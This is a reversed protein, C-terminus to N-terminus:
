SSTTTTSTTTTTTTTTLRPGCSYMSLDGFNYDGSRGFDNEDKDWFLMWYHKYAIGNDFEWSKLEGQSWHGLNGVTHHTPYDFTGPMKVQHILTGGEAETLNTPAATNSARLQFADPTRPFTSGNYALISFKNVIQPVVFSYGVYQQDLTGGVWPNNYNGDFAWSCQYGGYTQRCFARNVGDTCLESSYGGPCLDITTSTTTTTTTTTTSTTTTTAGEFYLERIQSQALGGSTGLDFVKVQDIKGDIGNSNDTKSGLLLGDFGTADANGFSGARDLVKVANVWLEFNTTTKQVVMHYWTNPSVAFGSGPTAQDDVEYAGAAGNASRVMHVRAAGTVKVLGLGSNTGDSNSMIAVPRNVADTPVTDFRIWLSIAINIDTGPHVVTRIFDTGDFDFSYTGLLPRTTTQVVGFARGPYNAQIDPFKKM